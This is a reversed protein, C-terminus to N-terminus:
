GVALSFAAHRDVSSLGSPGSIRISKALALAAPRSIGAPPPVTPRRGPLGRMITIVGPKSEESSGLGTFGTVLPVSRLHVLQREQSLTSRDLLPTM